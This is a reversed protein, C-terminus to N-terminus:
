SKTYTKIFDERMPTFIDILMGKKLCVVGHKVNSPIFFSDGKKLTQTEDAITVDFSGEAIYTSQTHVHHHMAGVGDTEFHVNVMMMTDDYSVIQRKVKDDIIEWDDNQHCFVKQIQM